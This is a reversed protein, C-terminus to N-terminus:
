MEMMQPTSQDAQLASGRVKEWIRQADAVNEILDLAKSYVIGLRGLANCHQPKGFHSEFAKRGKFEAGACIQCTFTLHLGKVKWLWKPIPRGDVDVYTREGHADLGSPSGGADDHGQEDEAGAAPVDLFGAALALEREQADVEAALDPATKGARGRAHDAAAQIQASLFDTLMRVQLELCAVHEEEHQAKTLADHAVNLRKTGRRRRKGGERRASAAAFVKTDAVQSRVVNRVSWLREAAESASGGRKMGLEGLVARIRAGGASALMDGASAFGELDACVKGLFTDGHTAPDNGHVNRMRWRRKFANVSRRLFGEGDCLPYVRGYFDALYAVLGELYAVYSASTRADGRVRGLDAALGEVFDAYPPVAPGEGELAQALALALAGTPATGAAAAPRSAAGARARAEAGDEAAALGWAARGNVWVGYLAQLDVRRGLAEVGSFMRGVREADHAVPLDWAWGPQRAARVLAVHADEAEGAGHWARLRAVEAWFRTAMRAAVGGEEGCGGGDGGGLFRVHAAVAGADDRYAERLRVEAACVEEGLRRVRHLQVLRAVHTAASPRGDGDDDGAPVRRAVEGALAEHLCAAEHELGYLHELAWPFQAM